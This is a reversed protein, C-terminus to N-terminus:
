GAPTLCIIKKCNTRNKLQSICGEVRLTERLKVKPIVNLTEPFVFESNGKSGTMLHKNHGTWTVDRIDKGRKIM